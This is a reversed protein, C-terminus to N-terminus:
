PQEEADKQQMQTKASHTSNVVEDLHSKTTPSPICCSFNPRQFEEREKVTKDPKLFIMRDLPRLLKANATILAAMESNKLVIKIPRKKDEEEDEEAPKGLRAFSLIEVDDKVRIYDLLVDIKEKDGAAEIGNIMMDENEPVGFLMVNCRRSNRDHNVLYKLNNMTTKKLDDREKKTEKLTETIKNVKTKM